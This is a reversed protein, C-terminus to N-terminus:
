KLLFRKLGVNDGADSGLNEYTFSEWVISDFDVLLKAKLPILFQCNKFHWKKEDILFFTKGVLLTDFQINELKTL